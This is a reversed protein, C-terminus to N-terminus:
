GCSSIRNREAWLFQPKNDLIVIFTGSVCFYIFLDVALKTMPEPNRSNEFGVFFLKYYLHCGCQRTSVGGIDNIM